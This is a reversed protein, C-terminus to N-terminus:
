SRREPKATLRFVVGGFPPLHIAGPAVEGDIGFQTVVVCGAPAQVTAECGGLEFLCLLAEGPLQREFALVGPPADRVVAQGLRLAPSSKRLAILARTFHLMSAHDSEQVDVAMARHAPDIPLWTDGSASFGAAVGQATWPMPTRAGDRGAGGAYSAIAFPDRLKEFPVHAQPLGLEEGQYLFIAGRLCM